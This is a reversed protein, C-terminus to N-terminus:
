DRRLLQIQEDVPAVWELPAPFYKHLPLRQITLKPDWSIEATEFDRGLPPTKIPQDHHRLADLNLLCVVSAGFCERAPLPHVFIEIRNHSFVIAIRVITVIGDPDAFTHLGVLFPLILRGILEALAINGPNSEELPKEVLQLKELLCPSM